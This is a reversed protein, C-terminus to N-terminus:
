LQSAKVYMHNLKIRVDSSSLPTIMGMKCNLVTLGLSTIHSSQPWTAPSPHPDMWRVGLGTSKGRMLWRKPFCNYPKFSSLWCSGTFEGMPTARGTACSGHVGGGQAPRMGAGSWHKQM